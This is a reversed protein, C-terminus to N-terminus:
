NIKLKQKLDVPIGDKHVLVSLVRARFYNESFYKPSNPFYQPPASDKIKYYKKGNEDRAMGIIHVNHVDNTKWNEYLNDRIDQNVISNDKM